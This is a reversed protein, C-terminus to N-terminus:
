VEIAKAARSQRVGAKTEQWARIGQVNVGSELLQLIEARKETFKVCNPHRAYLLHINEIAYNWTERIMQGAVREPAAISLAEVAARESFKADILDIQDATKAQSVEAAREKELSQLRENEMAQAAAIRKMEMSQFTGILTSIRMLESQLEITFEKARSDILRSFKLIPEKSAVRAKEIVKVLDNLAVQAGVAAKQEEADDVKGILAASELARAQLAWAATSFRALHQSDDRIILADNM